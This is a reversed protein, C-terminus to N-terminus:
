YSLKVVLGPGVVVYTYQGDDTVTPIESANTTDSGSSRPEVRSVSFGSGSPDIISPSAIVQENHNVMTIPAAQAEQMTVPRGNEVAGARVWRVPSFHDLPLLAGSDTSPTEQIWDASSLSSSYTLNKRYSGGTTNNVFLISWQDPAATQTVNVTVADGPHVDLPVATLADPLAEYWAQYRTGSDDTLTQTGAQILDSSVSGGVGVWTADSSIRGSPSGKPVIWTAYVSTFKGGTAAYGAWNYSRSAGAGADPAPTSLTPDSTHTPTTSEGSLPLQASVALAAGLFATAFIRILLDTLM